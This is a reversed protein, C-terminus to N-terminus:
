LCKRGPAFQMPPPEIGRSALTDLFHPRVGTTEFQGAVEGTKSRGQRRFRVIEQTSIVDEEM